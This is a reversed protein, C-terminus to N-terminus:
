GRELEALTARSGDQRVLDSFTADGNRVLEARGPGLIRDQVDASQRAFWEPYTEREPREPPKAGVARYNLVPITTSRCNFHLPPILAAPDDLAFVRGDAAACLETTREDLTAVFEFGQVIDANEQYTALAARNAIENVATRVLATAERTATEMVGGAYVGRGTPTGRIRTVLQGVDEGQVLGLRLQRTFAESTRRSQSKWWDAMVAGHVPDTTIIARLQDPTPLQLATLDVGVQSAMRRVEAETATASIKGLGYLEARTLANIERYADRLIGDAEKAIAEIRAAMRGPSVARPDKRLLLAVLKDRALKVERAVKVGLDNEYRRLLVARRLRQAQPDLPRRPM